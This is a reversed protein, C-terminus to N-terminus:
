RLLEPQRPYDERMAELLRHMTIGAGGGGHQVLRVAHWWRAAGSGSTPLLSVDGGAREWLADQQPGEPYLERGLRVVTDMTLGSGRAEAGGSVSHTGTPASDLRTVLEFFFAAANAAALPQSGGKDADSKGALLDSIGRVALVKARETAAVARLAGFDEMDVAVADGYSDRILGAMTTTTSAVVKESVVIPAVLADPQRHNPQWAGSSGRGTGIWVGDTAVARALLVLEHSVPAFDPRARFDDAQKGGEIWYVKSSAVVDGIAVDKVGGAIGLMVVLSPRYVEEARTVHIAADVNGPGTEIVAVTLAPNSVATGLDAALGASRDLRINELHERVARRELQLATVILIDAGDTKM